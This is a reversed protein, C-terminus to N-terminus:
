RRLSYIAWLAIAAPPILWLPSSGSRVIGLIMFTMSILAGILVLVSVYFHADPKQAKRGQHAQTTAM